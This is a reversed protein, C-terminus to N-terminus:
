ENLKYTRFCKRPPYISSQLAAHNKNINCKFLWLNNAVDDGLLFRSTNLKIYIWTYFSANMLLIFVDRQKHMFINNVPVTFDM